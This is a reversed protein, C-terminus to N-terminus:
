YLNKIREAREQAELKEVFTRTDKEVGNIEDLEDQLEKATGTWRDRIEKLNKRHEAVLSLQSMRVKRAIFFERGADYEDISIEDYGYLQQLEEETSCGKYDEAMIKENRKQEAELAAKAYKKYIKDIDEAMMTALEIERELDQKLAM